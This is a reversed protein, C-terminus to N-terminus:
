RVVAMREPAVRSAEVASAAIEAANPDVDVKKAVRRGLEADAKLLFGVIRERM